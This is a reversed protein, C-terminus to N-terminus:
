YDDCRGVRALVAGDNGVIEGNLWVAGREAAIEDVEKQSLDSDKDGTTWIIVFRRMTVGQPNTDIGSDCGEYDEFIDDRGSNM